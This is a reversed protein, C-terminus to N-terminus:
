LIIAINSHLASGSVLITGDETVTASHQGGSNLYVIIKDKVGKAPTPITCNRTHGVSLEGDKNKGWSYVFGQLKIQAIEQSEESDLQSLSKQLHDM